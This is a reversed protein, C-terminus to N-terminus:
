EVWDNSAYIFNVWNTGLQRVTTTYGIL